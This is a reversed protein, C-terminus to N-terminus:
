EGVMVTAGRDRREPGVAVVAGRGKMTEGGVSTWSVVVGGDGVIDCWEARPGMGMRVALGGERWGSVAERGRRARIELSVERVEVECERQWVMREVRRREGEPVAVVM